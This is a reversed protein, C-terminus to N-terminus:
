SSGQKQQGSKTASKKNGLFKCVRAHGVRDLVNLWDEQRGDLRDNQSKVEVFLCQVLIPRGNHALVLKAPLEPITIVPKPDGQRQQRNWRNASRSTGSDGVKSCGLFEDDKDCLITSRNDSAQRAKAEQTFEEGVWEGLDVYEKSGHLDSYLARTLLLDPLGGSFHRYDYVMCRFAAALHKGGFGAALMSLTRMQQIDRVLMVNSNRTTRAVLVRANIANYVCDCLDQPTSRELKTLFEEIIQSRRNYFGSVCQTARGNKVHSWSGVHLDFPAGQYKSLHVTCHESDIDIARRSGCGGDMGLLPGACVIRFLTRLRGGEDHWGEWKGGALEDNGLPLRGTAYYELALQEVNLSTADAMGNELDEFGVYSCRSGAGSQAGGLAAAVAQDTPPVWDVYTKIDDHATNAANRMRMGLEQAEKGGGVELLHDLPRKLRRALARIASFSIFASNTAVELVRTCLANVRLVASQMTSNAKAKKGKKAHSRKDESGVKEDNQAKFENRLIHIYDIMLREIAKGRARRSIMLDGVPTSELKMGWGGEGGCEQRWCEPQFSGFVLVELARSAFDYLGRKELTPICDWLVYALVGEWWMHRLWCRRTKILKDEPSMRQYCFNFVNTLIVSVVFIVKECDTRFVVKEGVGQRGDAKPRTGLFVSSISEEVTQVVHECSGEGDTVRSEMCLQLIMTRRSKRQLLSLFDVSIKSVIEGQDSSDLLYSQTERRRSVTNEDEEAKAVRAKRREDYLILENLEMLYDVNARIEVSLEWLQFSSLTSFIQEMRLAANNSIDAVPLDEYADVFGFHALGFRSLLGPYAITNWTSDGPPTIFQAMPLCVSENEFSDRISKWGNTGDGRMDGPGSTACLYLRCCRRLARLPAERLRYCTDLKAFSLPETSHQDIISCLSKKVEVVKARFISAPINEVVRASMVVAAALKGLIEHKVHPRVPLLREAKEQEGSALFWAAISQQQSMQKLIENERPMCFKSTGGASTKRKRGGIKEMVSRREDANLLVGSGEVRVSGAIRGCEEEDSFTRLLGQDRLRSLDCIMEKMNLLAQQFVVEDIVSTFTDKSQDKRNSADAVAGKSSRRPTYYKSYIDDIRFWPGKRYFLRCYINLARSDCDNGDTEEDVPSAQEIPSHDDGDMAAHSDACGLLCACARKVPPPKPPQYMRSLSLIAMLDDGCEWGFLPKMEDGIRWRRDNMMTHCIEALNQVYASSRHTFSVSSAAYPPLVDTCTLGQSEDENVVVSNELRITEYTPSDRGEQVVHSLTAKISSFEEIASPLFCGNFKQSGQESFIQHQRNENIHAAAKNLAPGKGISARQATITTPGTDNSEDKPRYQCSTTRVTKNAKDRAAVLDALVVDERTDLSLNDMDDSAEGAYTSMGLHLRRRCNRISDEGDNINGVPRKPSPPHITLLIEVEDDSSDDEFVIINTNQVLDERQDVKVSALRGRGGRPPLNKLVNKVSVWEVERNSDWRILAKEEGEELLHALHQTKGQTVWVMPSSPPSPTM